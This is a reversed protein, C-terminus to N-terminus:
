QRPIAKAPDFIVTNVGGELQPSSFTISDFGQKRAGRSISHTMDYDVIGRQTVNLNKGLM